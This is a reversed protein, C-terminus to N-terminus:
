SPYSEAGSRGQRPTDCLMASLASPPKYADEERRDRHSGHKSRHLRTCRAHQHIHSRQHARSTPLDPDPHGQPVHGVTRKKRVRDIGGHRTISAIAERYLDLVIDLAAERPGLGDVDADAAALIARGSTDLGQSLGHGAQVVVHVALVLRTLVGPLVDGNDGTSTGPQDADGSDQVIGVDAEEDGVVCTRGDM